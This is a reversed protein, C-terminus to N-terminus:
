GVEVFTDDDFLYEIREWVSLKGRDRQAKLRAEGGGLRMTAKTERFKEVRERNVADIYKDTELNDM